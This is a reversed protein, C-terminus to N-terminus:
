VTNFDLNFNNREYSKLEGLHASILQDSNPVVKISDSTMLRREIFIFQQTKKRKTIYM